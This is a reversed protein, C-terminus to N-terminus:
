ADRDEPVVAWVRALAAACQTAIALALLTGISGFVAATLLNGAVAGLVAILLCGGAIWKHATSSRPWARFRLFQNGSGNDEFAVLLRAAGLRGGHVQLDWDDFDRGVRVFAGARQLDELLDQLWASPERWERSWHAAQRRRILPLGKIALSGHAMRFRARARIRGHLRALPQLVFLGATLLRLRLRPQSYSGHAAGIAAQTLIVGAALVALPAAVLLPHWVIGLVALATLAALLLRSEAAAAFVWVSNTTREYLSQFPATGWPGQYIVARRSPARVRAPGYIRGSWSLHGAGNHREPWKEELQAEAAGYGVQQRWFARVSNRRHHWVVAAPSFGIAGGAEQIRWCIDIDDGAVRFRPDFGGVAALADRRFAMNCGPVHEAVRDCLMVHTPNGPANSVSEAAERDGAPAINPGGVAAFDHDEFSAALYQLWHQDPRADADVYAVIEGTSRWLGTNRARSLGRNPTCILECDYGRAIAETADTSGDNVVLVEYDPYVLDMLGDLTDALTSEANYACVVVSVRPWPRTTTFPVQACAERAASLAPKPRRAEDTLGFAWDHVDKGGRHWEDTWSFIFAGACGADFTTRVQSRLSEAQEETGNRLSDLGIESMLLPRDGALHHLRAVYAAFREPNELYVNFALLDLFGLQLYETTPYNVYTVIGEPDEDKVAAYLRKLYREIRRPGLWRAVSSPIENGLAYCLLAPHAARAGVKKRIEGEIDPAKQRDTLYGVYQECSLGVMVWLGHRHALDLLEVPPMTHPIRVANFGNAAMQAFDHDIRDLETYERGSSDPRFAGYTVGRVYLKRDGAFLFKGETRPRHGCRSNPESAESVSLTHGANGTWAEVSRASDPRM